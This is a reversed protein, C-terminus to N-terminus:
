QCYLTLVGYELSQHRLKFSYDPNFEHILKPLVLFDDPRHYVSVALKPRTAQILGRGGRLAAAESGEAELRLYTMEDLVDDLRAMLLGQGDEARQDSVTIAYDTGTFSLYDNRDYVGFNHCLINMAGYQAIYQNMKRSLKRFNHKDPEFAHIAKFQRHMKEAFIISESGDLAGVDALVEQDSFRFGVDSSFYREKHDDCSLGFYVFNMSIFGALINYLVKVSKADALQPTLALIEDLNALMFDSQNKYYAGAPQLGPMNMFQEFRLVPLKAQRLRSKYRIAPIWTCYRDVVVCDSFESARDFFQGTTLFTRGRDHILQKDGISDASDSVVARMVLGPNNKLVCDVLRLHEDLIYGDLGMLVVGFTGGRRAIIERVDKPFEAWRDVSCRAVVQDLLMRANSVEEHTVESTIM